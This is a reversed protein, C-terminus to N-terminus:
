KKSIAFCNAGNANTKDLWVPRTFYTLHRTGPKEGSQLLTEAALMLDHGQETAKYSLFKYFNGQNVQDCDLQSGEGSAYVSVDNIKGANRIAQAAGAEMIGWFGISACLDPHQQLVTVTTSLATNADWNAAQNSVVKIAPDKNFVEMIGGMQDVSAAAGLEGQVIQVKGSKGSSSGCQTVVDTAIIKGVERWDAGVFASSKYNSSMNIQIVHTGQSEARKLDKILLTVSPNQVILVDPKQDILATLAQQMASPNNNPDRVVYKMGRWEAEERVTRGWEDQLPIGLAIPLYAVTKDRLSKDYGVRLERSTKTGGDEQAKVLLPLTALALAPIVITWKPFMLKM